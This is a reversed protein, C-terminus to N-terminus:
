TRKQIDQDHEGASTNKLQLIGRLSNGNVDTNCHAMLSPKRNYNFLLFLCM